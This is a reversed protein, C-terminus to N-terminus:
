SGREFSIPWVWKNLDWGYGRRANLSDWLEIFGARYGEWQEYEKTDPYISIAEGYEAGEAKADEETIEHLREAGVGTIELRGRSFKYPMFISPRIIGMKFPDYAESALYFIKATDPIESPKLHNYRNETAWTEKMVLIDGVGGYPCQKILRRFFDDEGDWTQYLKKWFWGYSPHEATANWAGRVPQPNIVQRTMTKTGDLCKLPHDGSMIIGTEKM